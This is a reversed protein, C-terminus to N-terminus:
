IKLLCFITVTVIYATLVARGFSKSAVDVKAYVLIRGLRFNKQESDVM